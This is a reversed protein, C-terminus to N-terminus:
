IEGSLTYLGDCLNQLDDRNRGLTDYADLVMAIQHMGSRIMLAVSVTVVYM